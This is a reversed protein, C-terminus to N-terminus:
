FIDFGPGVYGVSLMAQFVPLTGKGDSGQNVTYPGTVQTYAQGAGELRIFNEGFNPQGVDVPHSGM